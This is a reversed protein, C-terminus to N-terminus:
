TEGRKRNTQAAKALRQGSAIEDELRQSKREAAVREARGLKEDLLEVSRLAVRASLLVERSQEVEAEAREVERGRVAHTAQRSQLWENATRWDDVAMVGEAIKQREAAAREVEQRAREREEEARQQEARAATLKQASEDLAKERHVVVKQLRRRNTM